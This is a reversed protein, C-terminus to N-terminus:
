VRFKNGCNHCVWYHQTTSKTKGSGCLGCLLGVWGFIIFGCCGKGAGYGKTEVQTDAVIQCQDSGCNPCRM